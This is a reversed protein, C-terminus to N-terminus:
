QRHPSPLGLKVKLGVEKKGRQVMVEVAEGVQRIVLSAKLDDINEVQLDAVGRIIDGKEMGAAKAGSGHTFGTVKLQGESTDLMVGIKPSEPVEITRPFVVFDALGVEVPDGPDPLVTAYDKGSRRRAREPIGSGYALHGNGALIVLHYDPRDAGFTSITEAMTEDWVIQAQHFYKFVRPAKGGPVDTQHVEFVRQLRKEYAADDFILEEPIKAREEPSLNEIGVEAVKSVLENDQNLAIVPIGKARAYQLIDRYLYYNFRWTSFYHSRRLFTQEDIDGSIYEDLAGQYRRQFMEMGIALEPHRQHLGKIVDLQILHDGYRDHKEGVYVIAKDAIRSIIEPLHLVTDVAIGTVPPLVDQSIGRAGESTEKKVNKGGSFELMSYQGYHFLKPTVRNVEESNRAMALGIVRKSSFSNKKLELSFDGRAITEPKFLSGFEPQPGLFLLSSKAMELHTIQKAPVSKFGKKELQKILPDYTKRDNKPLVLTRTPDGLLRSLVPRREAPNLSRFLDYDPDVVIKQPMQELSLSFNREM